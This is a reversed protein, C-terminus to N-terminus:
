RRRRHDCRQGAYGEAGSFRGAARGRVATRIEGACQNRLPGPPLHLFNELFFLALWMGSCVTVWVLLGLVLRSLIMVQRGKVIIERVPGAGGPLSPGADLLGQRDNVESM